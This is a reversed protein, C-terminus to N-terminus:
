YVGGVKYCNEHKLGILVQNKAIIMGGIGNKIKIECDKYVCTM